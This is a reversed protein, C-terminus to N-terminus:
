KFNFKYSLGLQFSQNLVVEDYNGNNNEDVNMNYNNGFIDVIGQKFRAEFSLGNSLSYGVGGVLSLDFGILDSSSYNDRLNDDVKIDVSPGVLLHFGDNFYFKNIAGLSLYDIHYNVESVTTSIPINSLTSNYLIYTSTYTTHGGQRSYVLEPQLTYLKAFKIALEGGVYFGTTFDANFNTFKSFNVGARIGPKLTVQAQTIGFFLFLLILLAKTRKNTLNM